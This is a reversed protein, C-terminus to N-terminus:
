PLVTCTGSTDLILPIILAEQWSFRKCVRSKKSMFWILQLRTLTCSLLAHKQQTCLQASPKQNTPTKAPGGTSKKKRRSNQELRQSKDAISINYIEASQSAEVYSWV